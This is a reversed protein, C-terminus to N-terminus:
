GGAAPVISESVAAHIDDWRAALAPTWALRRLWLGRPGRISFELWPGRGSGAILKLAIGTELHRDPLPDMEGLVTVAKSLNRLMAFAGSPPEPRAAAAPLHARARGLFGALVAANGPSCPLFGAWSEGPGAVNFVIQRRGDPLRALSPIISPTVGEPLMPPFRREEVGLLRDTRIGDLGLLSILKDYWDAM